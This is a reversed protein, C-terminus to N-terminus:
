KVNKYRLRLSNIILVVDSLAMIGAGWTPTLFGMAAIPIAIVNYFFAWFLNQKITIFTHKGLGIAFPIAALSNKLLIINASQIAIQSAESLSIGITAQSLAPADNIGDGVMATPKEQVLSQLKKLKDEPLYESYVTQIGVQQAIHECKDKRDGSLLITEYGANNLEAITEKAQARLEDEFDIFGVVEHNKLLFLDHEADDHKAHLLRKSGAQWYNNEFDYAEIGIGKIEKINKLTFTEQTGLYALLTQAIPHSSHLELQYLVSDFVKQDIFQQKNKVKLKGTTLTGTKDFVFRKITSIKELSDGGKVLIGKRAARGLGVMVAAPTALGMACPCAIVMVAITRMMSEAFPQHAFFYNIFFTLVAIAIVIPVFIASIKDALKQLPPKSAQAENVLRIINSLATQNGIATAKMRINGDTVITGGILKSDINKVVPLSEGTLMSEDVTAEGKILIGDTPIKEGTNVQLIDDLRIFSNEVHQITEKGISDTLVIHAITKQYKMLAKLSTATAKSTYEELFHGALVLTIISATTEFFLFDHVRNPFYIWGLLSYFYAASSSLFVLLDMNPLRNRISRWASQGFYYVGIIYVPTALTCQLWAQHLPKWSLFMHAILPLWFIGSILLLTKVKDSEQMTTADNESRIHYGLKEITDLFPKVDDSEELQFIIDGTSANALIEKAGKKELQNKITLACNGCTMGDVQYQYTQNM